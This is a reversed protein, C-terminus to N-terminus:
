VTRGAACLRYYVRRDARVAETWQWQTLWRLLYACRSSSMGTLAAIDNPHALAARDQALEGYHAVALLALMAAPGLVGGKTGDGKKRPQALEAFVWATPRRLSASRARITTPNLFTVPITRM